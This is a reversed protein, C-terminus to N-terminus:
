LESINSNGPIKQEMQSSFIKFIRVLIKTLHIAGRSDKSNSGKEKGPNGLWCITIFSISSQSAWPSQSFSLLVFNIDNYLM